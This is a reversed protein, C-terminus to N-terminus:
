GSGRPAVVDITVPVFELCPPPIVVLDIRGEEFRPTVQAQAGLERARAAIGEAVALAVVRDAIEEAARRLQLEDLPTM